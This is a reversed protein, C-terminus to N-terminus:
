HKFSNEIQVMTKGRKRKTENDQCYIIFPHKLLDAEIESFKVKELKKPVKKMTELFKETDEGFFVTTNNRNSIYACNVISDLFGNYEAENLYGKNGMDFIQFNYQSKEKMNGRMLMSLSSLFEKFDITGSKDTDFVDFLQGMDISDLYKQM